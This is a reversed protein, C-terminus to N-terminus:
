LLRDHRQFKFGRGRGREVRAICEFRSYYSHQIKLKKQFIGNRQDNNFLDLVVSGNNRMRIASPGRVPFVLRTIWHCWLWAIRDSVKIIDVATEPNNIVAAPAALRPFLLEDVPKGDSMWLLAQAPM